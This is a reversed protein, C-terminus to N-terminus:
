RMGKKMSSGIAVLILQTQRCNSFKDCWYFNYHINIWVNASNVSDNLTWQVLDNPWCFFKFGLLTSHHNKMNFLQKTASFSIKNVSYQSQHHFASISCYETCLLDHTLGPWQEFSRREMHDAQYSSSFSFLAIIYKCM